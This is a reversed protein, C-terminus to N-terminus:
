YNYLFFNEVRKVIDCIKHKDKVIYDVIKLKSAKEVKEKSSVVSVIIVPLNQYKDKHRIKELFTFGDMGPMLIDLWILDPKKEKLTELAEEASKAQLYNFNRNKLKLEIVKQLLSEDEIVLITKKGKEIIM